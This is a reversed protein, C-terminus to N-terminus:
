YIITSGKITNNRTNFIISRNDICTLINIYYNIIANIEREKYPKLIRSINRNYKISPITIKAEELNDITDETVLQM